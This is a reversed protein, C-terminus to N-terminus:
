NNYNNQLPLFNTWEQIWNDAGIAGRYSTKKFFPDSFAAGSFDAGNLLPSSPNLTPSFSTYYYNYSYPDNFKFQDLTSFIENHYQPRLLFARLDASNYNQYTNKPLYFTNSDSQFFVTSSFESKGSDLSAATATSQLYFSRVSATDIKNQQTRM